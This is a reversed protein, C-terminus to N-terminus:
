ICVCGNTLRCEPAGACHMQRITPRCLPQQCVAAFHRVLARAAIEWDCSLVNAWAGRRLDWQSWIQHHYPAMKSASTKGAWIYWTSMPLIRSCLQYIHRLDPLLPNYLKPDSYIHITYRDHADKALKNRLSFNVYWRTIVPPVFQCPEINCRHMLGYTQFWNIFDVGGFSSAQPQELSCHGM